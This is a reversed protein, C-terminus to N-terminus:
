MLYAYAFHSGANHSVSVPSSERALVGGVWLQNEQISAAKKVMILFDETRRAPWMPLECIYIASKLTPPPQKSSEVLVM